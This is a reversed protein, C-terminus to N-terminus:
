NPAEAQAQAAEKQAVSAALNQVVISLSAMTDGKNRTSAIHENFFDLVVCDKYVIAEDVGREAKVREDKKLKPRKKYHFSSGAGIIAALLVSDSIGSMTADPRNFFSYDLRNNKIRMFIFLQNEDDDLAESLKRMAAEQVKKDSPIGETMTERSHVM